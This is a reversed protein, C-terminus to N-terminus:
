ADKRDGEDKEEDYADFMDKITQITQEISQSVIKLLEKTQKDTLSKDLTSGKFEKVFNVNYLVFLTKMAELEEDM